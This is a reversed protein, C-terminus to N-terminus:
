VKGPLMARKLTQQQRKRLLYSGVLVVLPPAFFAFGLRIVPPLQPLLHVGIEAATAALLGVYSWCMWKYHAALWGSRRRLAPVLGAVVSALSVLALVHFPGFTHFVRYIALASVNLVVMSAVYLYGAIRHLTTAKRLLIIGAGFTLALYGSVTHILGVNSM